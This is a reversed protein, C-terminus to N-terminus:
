CSGAYTELVRKVRRRRIELIVYSEGEYSDEQVVAFTRGDVFIIGLPSAIGVEKRDCDTPWYEQQLLNLKGSGDRSAWAGFLSINNCGSDHADPPKPYEKSVEFYFVVRHERPVKIRYVRNVSLPVKARQAPSPMQAAYFKVFEGKLGAAEARNFLPAAFAAIQRYDPSAVTLPEMASAQKNESLAFGINCVVENEPAPIASPYDTVVGWVEQCHSCVQVSKSPRLIMRMGPKLPAYWPRNPKLLSQYWAKPLDAITPVEQPQNLPARRHWPTDWNRDSYRGFPVIVGDPRFVGVLLGRSRHRRAQSHATPISILAVCAFTLIWAISRRM